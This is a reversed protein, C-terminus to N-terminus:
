GCLKEELSADRIYKLFGSQKGSLLVASQGGKEVL